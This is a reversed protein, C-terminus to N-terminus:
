DDLLQRLLKRGKPTLYRMIPYSDKEVKSKSMELM